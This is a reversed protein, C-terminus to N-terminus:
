SFDLSSIYSIFTRMVASKYTSKQWFIHIQVPLSDKFPICIIDESKNFVDKYIVASACNHSIMYQITSLQNSYMLINLPLDKFEKMMISHHYSGKNVSVLPIRSLMEPTIYREESLPNDKSVALCLETSFIEKSNCNSYCKNDRIGLLLDLKANNLMNIGDITPAEFIKLDIEPHKEYFDPIIKKFFFTGLIAPVGLRLPPHASSSIDQAHSYYTDFQQLFDNTLDRFVKGEESLYLRNNIKNFLKYGLENELSSIAATISPQSIHCIESAKTLNGQNCVEKFYRLHNINM